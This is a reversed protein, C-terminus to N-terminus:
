LENRPEVTPLPAVTTNDRLPLPTNTTTAVPRPPAVELEPDKGELFRALQDHENHKAWTLVKNLRETLMFQAREATRAKNVWDLYASSMLATSHILSPVDLDAQTTQM